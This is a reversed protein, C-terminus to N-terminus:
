VEVEATAKSKPRAKKKRAKEKEKEEEEALVKMTYEIEDKTVETVKKELDRMVKAFKQGEAASIWELILREPRIGLKDLKNWLRDM